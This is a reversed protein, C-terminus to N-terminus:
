PPLVMIATLNHYLLESMGKRQTGQINYLFPRSIQEPPLDIRGRAKRLFKKRWPTEVPAVSTRQDSSQKDAMDAPDPDVFTDISSSDVLL